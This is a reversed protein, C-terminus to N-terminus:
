YNRVYEFLTKEIKNVRELFDEKAAVDKFMINMDYMLSTHM